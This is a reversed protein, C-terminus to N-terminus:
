WSARLRITLLHQIEAMLWIFDEATKDTVNYKKALTLLMEKQRTQRLDAALQNIEKVSTINDYIKEIM